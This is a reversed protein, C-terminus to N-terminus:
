DSLHTTGIASQAFAASPMAFLNSVYHGGAAVFPTFTGDAADVNATFPEFVGASDGDHARAQGWTLCACLLLFRSKTIKVGINGPVRLRGKTQVDSRNNFIFGIAHTLARWLRHKRAARPASPRTPM